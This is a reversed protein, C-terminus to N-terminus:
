HATHSDGIRWRGRGRRNRIVICCCSEVRGWLWRGGRRQKPQELCRRRWWSLYNLEWHILYRREDFEPPASSHLHILEGVVYVLTPVWLQCLQSHTLCGLWQASAPISYTSMEDTTHKCSNRNLVLLCARAAKWTSHFIPTPLGRQTAAAYERCKCEQIANGLPHTNTQLSHQKQAAM